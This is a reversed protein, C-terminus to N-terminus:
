INGPSMTICEQTNTADARNVNLYSNIESTVLECYILPKVVSLSSPFSVQSHCFDHRMSHQGRAAYSRAMNMFCSSSFTPTSTPFSYPNPTRHPHDGAAGMRVDESFLAEMKTCWARTMISFSAFTFNAASHFSLGFKRGVSRCM